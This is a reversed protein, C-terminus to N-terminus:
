STEFSYSFDNIKYKLTLKKHTIFPYLIWPYIYQFPPFKDDLNSIFFSVKQATWSHLPHPLPPPFFTYNNQAKLVLIILPPIGGWGRKRLHWPFGSASEIVSALYFYIVSKYVYVYILVLKAFIITKTQKLSYFCFIEFEM